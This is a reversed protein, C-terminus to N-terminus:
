STCPVLRAKDRTFPLEKFSVGDCVQPGEGGVGSANRAQRCLQLRAVPVGPTCQRDCKSAWRATIREQGMDRNANRVGHLAQQTSAPRKSCAHKSGAGGERGLAGAVTSTTVSLLPVNFLKTTTNYLSLAVGVGALEPSGLRGM